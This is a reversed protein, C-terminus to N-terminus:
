KEGALRRWAESGYVGAKAFDFPRFGIRALAPNDRNLRFDRKAADVFGPDAVVSDVDRGAKRWDALSLGAFDFAKGATQWYLNRGMVFGPDRWNGSLLQGSDWIVINREFTFSRHDEKRTRQLQHLRAFALINNRVINDKGYHQHFGGTKTNYVLNNEMLIGTSGEDTYLGWGGYSYAEIDHFVNNSVV